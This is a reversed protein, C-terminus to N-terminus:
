INTVRAVFFPIKEVKENNNIDDYVDEVGDFRDSILVSKVAQDITTL